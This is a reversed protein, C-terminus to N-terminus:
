NLIKQIIQKLIHFFTVIVHTYKLTYKFYVCDIFIKKSTSTYLFIPSCIDKVKSLTIKLNM